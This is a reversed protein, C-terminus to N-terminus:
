FFSEVNLNGFTFTSANFFNFAMCGSCGVLLQFPSYKSGLDIPLSNRLGWLVVPLANIWDGKEELMRAELGTEFLRQFREILGNSEPHYSTTNKSAFGITRCVGM